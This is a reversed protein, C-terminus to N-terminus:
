LVSEVPHISGHLSDISDMSHSCDISDDAIVTPFPQISHISHPSEISYNSRTPPFAPISISQRPNNAEYTQTTNEAPAPVEPQIAVRHEIHSQSIDEQEQSKKPEKGCKTLYNKVNAYNAMISTRVESVGLVYLFPAVGCSLCIFLISALTRSM